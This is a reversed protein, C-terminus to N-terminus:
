SRRGAAPSAPPVAPAFADCDTRWRRESPKNAPSGAVLFQEVPEQDGGEDLDPRALPEVHQRPVTAIALEGPKIVPQSRGLKAM